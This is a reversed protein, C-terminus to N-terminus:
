VAQFGKGMLCQKYKAHMTQKIGMSSKSQRASQPRTRQSVSEFRSVQTTTGQFGQWLIVTTCVVDVVGKCRPKRLCSGELIPHGTPPIVRMGEKAVLSKLKRKGTRPAVCAKQRSFRAEAHIKHPILTDLLWISQTHVLSSATGAPCM